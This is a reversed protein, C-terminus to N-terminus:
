LSGPPAEAPISVARATEPFPQGAEGAEKLAIESEDIEVHHRKALVPGGRGSVIYDDPPLVHVFTV